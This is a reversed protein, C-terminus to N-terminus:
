HEVSEFMSITVHVLTLVRSMKLLCPGHEEWPAERGSAPGTEEGQASIVQQLGM